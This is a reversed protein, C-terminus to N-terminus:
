GLPEDEGDIEQQIVERIRRVGQPHSHTPRPLAPLPIFLSVLSSLFPKGDLTVPAIIHCSSPSKYV